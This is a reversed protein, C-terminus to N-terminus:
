TPSDGGSGLLADVRDRFDVWETTFADLATLGQDTIRYYRRPHGPEADRWTTVLLGDGRMRALVPYVPGELEALGNEGALQRVLEFAGREGDRLLALACFVLAVHRMRGVLEAPGSRMGAM